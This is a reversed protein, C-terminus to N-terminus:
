RPIPKGTPCSSFGFNVGAYEEGEARSVTEHVDLLCIDERSVGLLDLLETEARGRLADDPASNFAIFFQRFPNIYSISYEPKESLIRDGQPNFAPKKLLFDKTKVEGNGGMGEIVFNGDQNRPPLPAAFDNNIDPETRTAKWLGVGILTAALLLVTAGVFLIPKRNRILFYFPLSM